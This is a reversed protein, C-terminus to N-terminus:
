FQVGFLSTWYFSQVVQEFCANGKEWVQHLSGIGYTSTGFENRVGGGLSKGEERGRQLPLNSVLKIIYSGCVSNNRLKGHSNTGSQYLM